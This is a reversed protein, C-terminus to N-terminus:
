RPRIVGWERDRNAVVVDPDTDYNKAYFYVDNARAGVQDRGPNVHWQHMVEISRDIDQGIGRIRLRTLLDVDDWGWQGPFGEDWGGVDLLAQREYIGVYPAVWGEIRNCQEPTTMNEQQAHYVIGASVVVRTRQWGAILQAVADTIFYMEPESTIVLDADTNKIGINRAFSCISLEPNHNYIYRVPMADSVTVPLSATWEALMQECGDSGGDDVVLIEDPLTLEALRDLSKRFQPTRNWTTILLCTKM